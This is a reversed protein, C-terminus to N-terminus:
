ETVGLRASRVAAALGSVFSLTDSVTRPSPEGDDGLSNAITEVIATGVVAADAIMAVEAAQEPTRIGFGVAVPLETQAKIRGVNSAIDSATASTTGTIGRVSVYYVFGSANEVLTTIRPGTSTPAILRVIDIGATVALPRFEDEEEPPLDVIILGDVGASAADTAFQNRGYAHIPNYYGMLVIPTDNDSKRFKAVMLLTKKIDYGSQLARRSALEISPGDAMPDTFPMGLEIIDAGVAPLGELIKSSIDGDPDGATIFTVLGGRNQARLTAFCSELRSM